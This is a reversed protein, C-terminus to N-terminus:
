ESRMALDDSEEVLEPSDPEELPFTSVYEFIRPFIQIVIEDFSNSYNELLKEFENIKYNKYNKPVQLDFYIFVKRLDAEKKWKIELNNISVNEPLNDQFFQDWRQQFDSFWIEDETPEEPTEPIERQPLDGWVFNIKETLFSKQISEEIKDQMWDDMFIGNPLTYITKISWNKGSLKIVEQKIILVDPFNKEFVSGSIESIEQEITQEIKKSQITATRIIDFDLQISKNLRTSLEEGLKDLVGTYLIVDEPLKIEGIIKLKESKESGSFDFKNLKAKPVLHGLEQTFINKFEEKFDINDRIQHLSSNLTIWLAILIGGLVFLNRVTKKSNEQHPNFGYFIFMFAGVILISSLNTFFLLFGGWASGFNGLFLEIGIVSIPPMLATAMAVGAVSAYLRKYAFALLAIMASSIAILLDILNPATRSTIEANESVFPLFRSVLFAIFVGLILSLFLIKSSKWFLNHRGNAIAFAIAQIPRLLPAILMAGIIVAVSNQILGFTAILSSLIIELWYVRDINVSNSIELSIEKKEEGNRELWAIKNFLKDIVWSWEADSPAELKKRFWELIQYNKKQFFLKFKKM